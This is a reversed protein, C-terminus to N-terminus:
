HHMSFVTTTRHLGQMRIGETVVKVLDNALRPALDVGHIIEGQGAPSTDPEAEGRM